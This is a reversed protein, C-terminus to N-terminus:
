KYLKVKSNRIKLYPFGTDTEFACEINKYYDSVSNIWRGDSIKREFRVSTAQIKARTKKSETKFHGYADANWLPSNHLMAIFEARTM